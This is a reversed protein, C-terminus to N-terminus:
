ECKDGARVSPNEDAAGIQESDAAAITVVVLCPSGPDGCHVARVEARIDSPCLFITEGLAMGPSDIVNREVPVGLPVETEPIANSLFTRIESSEVVEGNDVNRPLYQGGDVQLRLDGPALAQFAAIDRTAVLEVDKEINLFAILAGGAVVILLYILFFKPKM